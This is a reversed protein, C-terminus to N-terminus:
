EEVFYARGTYSRSFTDYAEKSGRIVLPSILTPALETLAEADSESELTVALFDDDGDYDPLDDDCPYFEADALTAEDLEVVSRATSILLDPNPISAPTTFSGDFATVADRIGKIYRDDTGCCGGLVLIGAELFKPAFAAFDEASLDFTRNGEEDEHPMGANPKAILPIGFALATPLLPALAKLMDDPGVSCNTGFASIGLPALTVLCAELTDGSMTRGGADVTMTVFIPKDSVSRIGTVAAKVETLSISTEVAFFAVGTEHLIKAQAAYAAVVEDFTADGFPEIFLGTPSLDGAVRCTHCGCHDHEHACDISLAALAHNTGEIDTIGHKKLSPPNGGFTPAYVADSGAQMYARQINKIVEPNELVWKEPCAGKPMGDRMLSTGTAGDLIFPLPFSAPFNPFLTHLTSM